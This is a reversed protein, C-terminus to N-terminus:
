ESTSLLLSPQRLRRMALECYESSLEVGVFKCGFREAVVGTTGSGMFPDLVTGGAPCGAKICPEILKEPYTAFHAEPYPQTAVTWVSRVNRGAEDCM